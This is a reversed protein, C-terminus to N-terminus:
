DPERGQCTSMLGQCGLEVNLARWAKYEFGSFAYLFVWSFGVCVGLFLHM